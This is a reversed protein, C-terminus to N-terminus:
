YVCPTAKPIGNISRLLTLQMGKKAGYISSLKKKKSSVKYNKFWSGLIKLSLIKLVFNIGWIQNEEYALIMLYYCTM